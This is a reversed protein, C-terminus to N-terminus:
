LGDRYKKWRRFVNRNIGTIEPHDRLYSIADKSSFDRNRPYFHEYLNKIVEFDEKTDLEMSIEPHNYDETAEFNYIKYKKPHRSIYLFIHEREEKKIALRDAEYLIAPNLVNLELGPTFTTKLSNTVLDYDHTKFFDIFEDVLEPEPVPNDAMFEVLLGAQFAKSALAIRSLVDEESGRFQRVGIRECLSAIKDDKENTSTAVVIESIQKVKQVREIMLQLVPKDLIELLM